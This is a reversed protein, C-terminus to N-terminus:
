SLLQDPCLACYIPFMDLSKFTEKWSSGQGQQFDEHAETFPQDM